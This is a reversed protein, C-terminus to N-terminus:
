RRLVVTGGLVTLDVHVDEIEQPRDFPSRDLVVIDALKGVQLTGRTAEEHIAFAADRTQAALAEGVTLRQRPAPANVASHIGYLPSFPMNDSGFAVRVGGDM